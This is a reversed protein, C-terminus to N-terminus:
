LINRYPKLASVTKTLSQKLLTDLYEDSSKAPSKLRTRCARASIIVAARDLDFQYSIFDDPHIAEIGYRELQKSPFDKINFTVIADCRGHVAAAVVHRDGLDPISIAETLYEYGNVLCDIVASNM